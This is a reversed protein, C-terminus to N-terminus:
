RTRGWEKERCICYMRLIDDVRYRDKVWEDPHMPEFTRPDFVGWRAMCPKGGPPPAEERQLIHEWPQNPKPRNCHSGRTVFHVDYSDKEKGFGEGPPAKGDWEDYLPDKDKHYKPVYMVVAEKCPGCIRDCDDASQM